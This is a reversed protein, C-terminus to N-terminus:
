PPKNMLFTNVAQLTARSPNADPKSSTIWALRSRIFDKDIFPGSRESILGQSDFFSCLLILAIGVSLDRGTSCTVLVRSALDATLTARAANHAAGARERLSNLGHKGHHCKLNVMNKGEAGSEGECNVVLDYGATSSRAGAGLFITTTPEILVADPDAPSSQQEEYVLRDILDPLEDEGISMLENQHEWFKTATLGRSWSESDDAAGQIYGGGGGEAGSVRSSASCCVILNTGEEEVAKGDWDGNVVWVVRIPRKGEKRLREVDLGLGRFGACWGEVRGQMQSRESEGVCGPVEVVDKEGFVVKNIVAVWIPVTKALADPMVKGRRTSDVIVAGGSEGLVKLLQLNLRRLSFAWQGHHGDTSKFYVSGQKQSPPIYWSGARENAILPLSYTAAVQTAFASDSIISSLRNPVSLTHRKLTSLTTYLSINNSPLQLDALTTPFRNSPPSGSTRSPIHDADGPAAENHMTTM